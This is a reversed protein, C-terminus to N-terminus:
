RVGRLLSNVALGPRDRPDVRVRDGTRTFRYLQGSVPGRFSATGTGIYEFMIVSTSSATGTASGAAAVTGAAM